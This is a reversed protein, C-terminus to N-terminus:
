NLKINAQKIIRAYIEADSRMVKAFEEPTEGGVFLGLGEIRARVDAYRQALRTSPSLTQTLM